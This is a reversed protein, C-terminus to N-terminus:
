RLFILGFLEHGLGEALVKDVVFFVWLGGFDLIAADVHDRPQEIDWGVFVSVMCHARGGNAGRLGDHQCGKGHLLSPLFLALGLALIPRTGVKHHVTGDLNAPLLGGAVKVDFLLVDETGVLAIHDIGFFGDLQNVLVGDTDASDQSGRVSSFVLIDLSDVVEQNLLANVAWDV